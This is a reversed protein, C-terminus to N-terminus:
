HSPVIEVDMDCQQEDLVHMEDWGGHPIELLARRLTQWHYSIVKEGVTRGRTQHQDHALCTQLSMNFVILCSHYHYSHAIELLTQRASAQLATSDAITLRGRALRKRIISYFLDFAEGNVRQNTEDDCIMARCHDSSVISTPRCGQAEHREVFKCAFTSKGSAAPGCLVILTKQPLTITSIHEPMMAQTDM